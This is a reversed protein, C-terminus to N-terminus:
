GAKQTMSLAAGFPPRLVGTETVIASIYEARTVDITPTVVATRTGPEGRTPRGAARAISPAAIAAADTGPGISSWPACVYVPMTALAAISASGIAAIADGNGGVWEASLLVADVIRQEFLWAIAADPLVTCSVDSQELEWTTVRAGDLTPRGEPVWVHVAQGAMTLAQVIGIGTGVLGNGMPGLLGHVLIEIPRDESRPLLPVGHRALASHDLAAETSIANAEARLADAIDATSADAPLAARRAAMRELATVLARATPDSRRLTDSVLDLESVVVRPVVDRRHDATLALGYAAVQAVLPGGRVAGARIARAVDRGGDCAMEDLRSPLGRQDLIMLTDDTLRYPSRYTAGGGTAQTALANQKIAPEATPRPAASTAARAQIQGAASDPGAVGLEFLDSAAATAQSRIAEAAGVVQGATRVASRGFVRFFGRRGVDAGDEPDSM